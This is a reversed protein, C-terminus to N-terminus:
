ADFHAPWSARDLSATRANGPEGNLMVHELSPMACRPEILAQSHYHYGLMVVLDHAMGVEARDAAEASWRRNTEQYRLRAQEVTFWNVPERETYYSASLDAGAQGRTVLALKWALNQADQIGTSAGFGGLPPMIHAADGIIFTRGAILRQAAEVAIEWPLIM